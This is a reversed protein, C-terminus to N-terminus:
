GSPTVTSNKYTRQFNSSQFHHNREEHLKNNRRTFSIGIKHPPSIIQQPSNPPKPFHLSEQLNDLPWPFDQHLLTQSKEFCKEFMKRLKWWMVEVGVGDCFWRLNM